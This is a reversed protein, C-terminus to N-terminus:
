EKVPVMRYVPSPKFQIANMVVLITGDELMTADRVRGIGKILIEDEVTKDGEIRVRHFEQSQLGSVLLDGKWAPFATGQVSTIGATAISPVWYHLPQEMGAKATMATMPTGDYNM